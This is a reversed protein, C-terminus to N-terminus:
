DSKTIANATFVVHQCGDYSQMSGQLDGTVTKVAGLIFDSYNDESYQHADECGHLLRKMDISSSISEETPKGGDVSIGVAKTIPTRLRKIIKERDSSVPHMEQLKTVKEM